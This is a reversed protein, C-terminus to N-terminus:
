ISHLLMSFANSRCMCSVMSSLYTSTRTSSNGFKILSLMIVTSCYKKLVYPFIRPSSTACLSASTINIVQCGCSGSTKSVRGISVSWFIAVCANIGKEVACSSSLPSCIIFFVLYKSIASVAHFTLGSMLFVHALKLVCKWSAWCDLCLWRPHRCHKSHSLKPLFWSSPSTVPPSIKLYTCFLYVCPWYGLIFWTM